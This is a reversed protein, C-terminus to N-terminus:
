AHTKEKLADRPLGFFPYGGAENKTVAIDDGCGGYDPQTCRIVIEGTLYTRELWPCEAPSVDRTLEYVTPRM